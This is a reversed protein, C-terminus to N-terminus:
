LPQYMPNTTSTEGIMMNNIRHASDKIVVYAIAKM